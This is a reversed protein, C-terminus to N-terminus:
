RRELRADGAPSDVAAHIDLLLDNVPPRNAPHRVTLVPCSAARVVQEVVSGMLAHSIPGRGHTGMVILDCENGAAFIRIALGPLVGGVAHVETRLGTREHPTLLNRLRERIAAEEYGSGSVLNPVLGPRGSLPLPDHIVHVLHLEAAFHRALQVAYHLAAAATESFDTPVLIKRLVLGMAVEESMCNTHALRAAQM